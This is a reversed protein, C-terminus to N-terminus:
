DKIGLRLQWKTLFELPNSRLHVFDAVGIAQLQDAGDPNGAVLVATARGRAQLRPLLNTALATYDGDSSCLVILDADCAAMEDAGDFQQTVINFGACAFLSAAFSSRASRMKVDGFEALLVRPTRGATAAHRETRLRLQEFPLTARRPTSVRSLEIRDLAKESPTAYNNTGTFVRRRSAVASEKDALSRELTRQILGDKRAQRYGGATEIQQMLKWGELAIFDTLVELYYSGAGPDAVRALMAEQKLLVQTNRALRRSAEDPTKYCADFPAVTISDAGGLAASMAETTARLTNVHPEYVTKNWRSTRAHIRAQSGPHAGGFNEVVQTWLIRFARLKATQFFFNAGMAFSFEIAASAHDIEVNRSQMEALFDIAAALTFGVEEVATAGSEEFAEGHVTFPILAAPAARVIEAAFDLNALPDFGTSIAAATPQKGLREILLRLLPEDTEVFHVPIERLDALLLALGSADKVGIGSFAIQEAGAAVAQRAARNAEEPEGEEIEERIRWEASTRAGRMGSLDGSAPSLHALGAIDEARYYPKVALGEETKWILKQAYDAGKLDRSIAGEWAETSVPPFEELLKETAM